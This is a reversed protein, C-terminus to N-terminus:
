QLLNAGMGSADSLDQEEGARERKTKFSSLKEELRLSNEVMTEAEQAIFTIHRNIADTGESVNEVQM